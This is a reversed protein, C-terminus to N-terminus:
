VMPAPWPTSSRRLGAFRRQMLIWGWIQSELAQAMMEASWGKAQAAELLLRVGEELFAGEGCAPDLFWGGGLVEEAYGVEALILRVIEPPTYVVGNVKQSDVRLYLPLM